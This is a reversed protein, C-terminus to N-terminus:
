QKQKGLIMAHAKIPGNFTMHDLGEAMNLSMKWYILNSLTVKLTEPSPADVVERPFRNWHKM